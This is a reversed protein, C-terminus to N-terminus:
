VLAPSIYAFSSGSATKILTEGWSCGSSTQSASSAFRLTHISFGGAMRAAPTSFIISFRPSRTTTTPKLFAKM